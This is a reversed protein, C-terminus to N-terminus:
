CGLALVSASLQFAGTAVPIPVHLGGLLVARLGKNLRSYRPGKWNLLRDLSEILHRHFSTFVLRFQPEGAKGGQGVVETPDVDSPQAGGTASVRDMWRVLRRAFREAWQDECSLGTEAQQEEGGDEGEEEGEENEGRRGRCRVADIKLDLVLQVPTRWFHRVVQTLSPVRLGSQEPSFWRGADLRRVDRWATKEVPPGEAALQEAEAEGESGRGRVTGESASVELRGWDEALLQRGAGVNEGAEGRQEAGHGAVQRREQEELRRKQKDSKADMWTSPSGDSWGREREVERGRHLEEIEEESGRVRLGLRGAEEKEEGGVEEEVGVEMLSRRAIGRWQSRGVWGESKRTDVDPPQNPWIKKRFTTGHVVALVGDATM